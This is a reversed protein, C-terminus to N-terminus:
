LSVGSSQNRAASRKGLSVMKFTELQQSTLSKDLVYWEFAEAFAERSHKGGYVSVPVLGSEIWEEFRLRNARSMHKYWWRHGLEHIVLAVVGRSPRSFIHITNPGIRYHGGVGLEAGYQNEGGCEECQVFITGQWVKGFGKKKLRQRAEDFVQIYRNVMNANVTRDDIVVKMGNLDFETFATQSEFPHEPNAEDHKQLMLADTRLLKLLKDMFYTLSVQRSLGYTGRKPISGGVIDNFNTKYLKLMRPGAEPGYGSYAPEEKNYAQKWTKASSYAESILTELKDFVKDIKQTHKPDLLHLTGRHIYKIQDRFRGVFRKLQIIAQLVDDYDSISPNVFKLWGRRIGMLWQKTLAEAVFRRVVRHAIRDM